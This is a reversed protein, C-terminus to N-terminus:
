AAGGDTEPARKALPWANWALVLAALPLLWIVRNGYRDHVESLGGTALANAAIGGFAVVLFCWCRAFPASGRLLATLAIAVVAAIAGINILIRMLSLRIGGRGQPSKVYSGALGDDIFKLSNVEFITPPSILDVDPQFHVLQRFGNAALNSSVELPYKKITERDIQAAEELLHPSAARSVAGNPDWLFFDSVHGTPGSNGLTAQQACLTYRREACSARLYDRAPGDGVLRALLFLSSSESVVAKKAAVVNSAILFAIAIALPTAVGLLVSPPRIDAQRIFAGVGFMALLALTIPIFSLHTAILASTLGIDFLRGLLGRTPWDYVVVFGLVILIGAFIDPM